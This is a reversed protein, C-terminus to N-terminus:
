NQGNDDRLKPPLNYWKVERNLNHRLLDRIKIQSNAELKCLDFELIDLFNEYDNIKLQLERKEVESFAFLWSMFYLSMTALTEFIRGHSLFVVTLAIYSISPFIILRKDLKWVLKILRILDLLIWKFLNM